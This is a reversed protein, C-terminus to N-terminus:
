RGEWYAVYEAYEEDTAVHWSEIDDPAGHEWIVPAVGNGSRETNHAYTPTTTTM